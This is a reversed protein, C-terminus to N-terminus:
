LSLKFTFYQIFTNMILIIGKSILLVSLVLIYSESDLDQELIDRGSVLMPWLELYAYGVEQCEKKEEEIPDSVVTFKLSFSFIGM